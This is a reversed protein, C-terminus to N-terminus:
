KTRYYKQKDPSIVTIQLHDSTFIADITKRWVGNSSM